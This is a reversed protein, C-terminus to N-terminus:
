KEIEKKIKGVIKGVDVRRHIEKHLKGIDLLLDRLPNPKTIRKIDEISKKAVREGMSIAEKWKSFELTGIDELNINIVLDARDSALDAASVESSMIQLSKSASIMIGPIKKTGKRKVATENMSASKIKVNNVNVAIIIDAGQKRLIETPIPDVIAGDVLIKNNNEVPVFLGPISISARVAKAVNGKHFIIEKKHEVDFATVFLPIKLDKFDIDNLKEELMQEIKDGKILGYRPLYAYDFIEDWKEKSVELALKKANPESSYLAGVLAGSSTGAIMDIPIKNQELVNLVGIHALGRAGGGGLALGVKKKEFM